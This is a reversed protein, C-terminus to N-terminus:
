RALALRERLYGKQAKAQRDAPYYRYRCENESEYIVLTGLLLVVCAWAYVM